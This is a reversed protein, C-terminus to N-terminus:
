IILPSILCYRRNVVNWDQITMKVNDQVHPNEQNYELAQAPVM